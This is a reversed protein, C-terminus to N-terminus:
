QWHQVDAAIQRQDPGPRIGFERNRDRHHALAIEFVTTASLPGFSNEPREFLPVPPQTWTRPTIPLQYNM